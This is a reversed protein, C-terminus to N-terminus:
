FFLLDEILLKVPIKFLCMEQFISTVHVQFDDKDNVRPLIM